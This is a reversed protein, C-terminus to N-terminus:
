KLFLFVISTLCFVLILLITPVSQWNAFEAGFKKGLVKRRDGTGRHEPRRWNWCVILGKKKADRPSVHGMGNGQSTGEGRKWRAIAEQEKLGLEFAVTQRFGEEERMYVELGRELRTQDWQSVPSSWKEIKRVQGEWSPGSLKSIKTDRAVPESSSGM